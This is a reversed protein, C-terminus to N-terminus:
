AVIHGQRELARLRIHQLRESAGSIQELRRVEELVLEPSLAGSDNLRELGTLQAALVAAAAAAKQEETPM